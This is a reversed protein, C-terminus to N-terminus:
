FPEKRPSRKVKSFHMMGDDRYHTKPLSIEALFFAKVSQTFAKPM